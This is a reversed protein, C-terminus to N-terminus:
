PRLLRLHRAPLPLAVMSVVLLAVPLPPCGVCSEIRDPGRPHCATCLGSSYYRDSGCARCRPPTFPGGPLCEYCYDVRPTTWAVRRDGCVVCIKPLAVDGARTRTVGAADHSGQRAAPGGAILM